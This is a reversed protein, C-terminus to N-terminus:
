VGENSIISRTHLTFKGPPSLRKIVTRHSIVMRNSESARRVSRNVITLLNAISLNTILRGSLGTTAILWRLSIMEAGGGSAGLGSNPAEGNLVDM